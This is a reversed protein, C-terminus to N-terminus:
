GKGRSVAYIGVGAIALWGWLPLSFGALSAQNSLSSLNLSTTSSGGGGGTQQQQQQQQQGTSGSGGGTNTQQQQSGSPAPAAAAVTFSLSGAPQGAVFWQESWTGVTDAAMSGTLVAVGSANTSGFPAAANSQGNHNSSGTVPSNAPGTITLRWQDGVNFQSNNGTTLNQITVSLAQGSPASLQPASSVPATSSPGAGRAYVAQAIQQGLDSPCTANGGDVKNFDPFSACMGGLDASIASVQQDLPLGTNAYAAVDNALNALIRSDDGLGRLGIRRGVGRSRLMLVGMGRVVARPTIITPLAIFRTGALGSPTPAVNLYM